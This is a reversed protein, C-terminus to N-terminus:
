VRGEGAHPLTVLVTLGGGPTDRADVTGGHWEVLRRCLYLGVGLGGRERVASGDGQVFPEWLRQRIEGDIGPGHDVVAVDWASERRAARLEISTASDTFRLANDVLHSLAAALRSSSGRLHADGGAAEVDITVPRGAKRAPAAVMALLGAVDVRETGENARATEDLSAVELLREILELLRRGQQEITTGVSAAQAPDDTRGLLAAGALIVTLPSRLEHSVNQIFQSRVADAAEARDLAARLEATREDVRRELDAVLDRTQRELFLRRCANAVHLLLESRRVPKLLYGYAGLDTATEAIEADDVGSVMVVAVDGTELIRRALDLGDEAGLLVDVLVLDPPESRLAALATAGDAAEDCHYGEGELIIRFLLRTDADDDVVLLRAGRTPAM